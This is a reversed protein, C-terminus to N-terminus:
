HEMTAPKPKTRFHNLLSYFLLILVAEFFAPFCLSSRPNIEATSNLNRLQVAGDWDAVPM